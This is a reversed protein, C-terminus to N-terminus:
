SPKPLLTSFSLDNLKEVIAESEESDEDAVSQWYYMDNLLLMTAWDSLQQHNIVGAAAQTLARDIDQMTIRIDTVNWDFHNSLTRPNGSFDFSLGRKLERRLTELDIELHAFRVLAKQEESTPILLQSSEAHM